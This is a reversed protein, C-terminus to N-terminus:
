QNFFAEVLEKGSAMKFESSKAALETFRTVEDPMIGAGSVSFPVIERLSRKTKCPTVIGPTILVRTDKNEEMYERIWSLLFYDTAELATVKGKLDGLRSAEDNEDLYICVFDKDKLAEIATKAKRELDTEYHGTLEPVDVVALGAHRAAGRAYEVSSVVAGSMGFRDSFRELQPKRGQGWLWIMNAPNEQLDVRVQNIEHDQLLLKADYMLKKLLEEGPGKPLNDDIREGVINDPCFTKASLADYGHSDKIVAIHRHEHGAFFRVFGSSIKKNLFNILAKAEKSSIGGGRPDALKGGSETIFNMRFPIENEELVLGMDAAELPGRGTYQKDANYGLLNVFSSDASPELRESALKVTGCRGLKAFYHMNPVKAVELPTKGDLLEIPQDAAGAICVMLFKM